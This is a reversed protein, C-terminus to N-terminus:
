NTEPLLGFKFASAALSEGWAQYGLPGPHFGDEAFLLPEM